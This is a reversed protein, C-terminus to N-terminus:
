TKKEPTRNILSEKQRIDRELGDLVSLEAIVSTNDLRGARFNGLLTEYAVRKRNEILPLVVPAAVAFLRAERLQEDTM